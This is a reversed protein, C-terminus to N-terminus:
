KKSFLFRLYLSFILLIIKAGDKVPNLKAHGAREEYDIPMDKNRFGAHTSKITFETEVRFDRSQLKIKDFVEKKAARLGSLPDRTHIRHFFRMLGIIVKNGIRNLLSMEKGGKVTRTATVIDYEGIAKVMAPIAEPPYTNDADIFVIIKGQANSIGTGLATGKGQNVKHQLFRVGLGKAIEATKDKSGDDVVIIEYSGDVVKKIRQVVRELGEEENYAPVIVTVSITKEVM